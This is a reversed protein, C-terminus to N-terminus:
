IFEHLDRVGLPTHLFWSYTLVQFKEKVELSCVLVHIRSNNQCFFDYSLTFINEQQIEHVLGLRNPCPRKM